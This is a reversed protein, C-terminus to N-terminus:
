EENTIVCNCTLMLGVVSVAHELALRTVKVPDIVGTQILNEYVHSYANYGIIKRFYHEKSFPNEWHFSKGKFDSFKMKVFTEKYTKSNELNLYNIVVDSSKGTNNIITKLPQACADIVIQIGAVQDQTLQNFYNKKLLETLHYSAFYLATGGGPVIGEQIAAITANLADDVRDKKELIEVETSGGVKIVAIGGSLKALRERYRNIHLEDLTKDNELLSRLNDIKSNVANNKESDKNGIITTSNRGIIVKKCSGIHNPKLSKLSADSSSGIVEGGTITCIDQLIDVRHEGYSPAKIVCVNVVGKMKNVICTHLAEAEIDDCIILLPKNAKQSIELAPVIDSISTVKQTTLLVFPDLYECTLKEGNTVFYPSVYGSSLQMGEMIELSTKVSKAPEVTIIGDKGVAQIAKNILEGIEKDGNSSITGINIIDENKEIPVCGKKLFSLVMEKALDMGYKIEIASRGTMIMKIGSSLLEYGLVTATTTGDGALENTKSAVEKILEAGVAPLKERLNISRAVTVGDKTIIPSSQGSDIIVNQGSPGMTSRVADSLIKAGKLLEKQADSGFHVQQINKQEKDM